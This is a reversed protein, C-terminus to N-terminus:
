SKLKQFETKSNKESAYFTFSNTVCNHGVTQLGLPIAPYPGGTEVTWPTRWALISSHIVMGKELSDELDLSRVQTEQMQPLNEVTQAM